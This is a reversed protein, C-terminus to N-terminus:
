AMNSDSVPLMENAVTNYLICAWIFRHDSSCCPEQSKKSAMLVWNMGGQLLTITIHKEISEEWLKAVIQKREVFAYNDGNPAELCCLTTPIWM